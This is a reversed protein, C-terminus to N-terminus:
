KLARVREFLNPALEKQLQEEVGSEMYKQVFLNRDVEVITMGAEQLKKKYEEQSEKVLQNQYATAEQVAEDFAKKIDDPFGDYRDKKVLFLWPSYTHQTLMVYKQVEYFKSTYILDFPNEQADVTGQQLAVFLEPFPIPTPNAGLAKWSEIVLPITTVRLKLGQLDDPTRIEKNATLNRAGRHWVALLRANVKEELIKSIEQGIESSYVKDMHEVSEILFPLVLGQYEPFFTGFIGDGPIVIDIVGQGLNEVMDIESGLQASPFVTVKVRGNTKQEVLEAFKRAGKDMESDVTVNHGLKLEYVKDSSGGGSGGTGTTATAESQGSGGSSQSGSGSGGGGCGSLIAAILLIVAGFLLLGKRTRM